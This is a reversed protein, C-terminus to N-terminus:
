SCKEEEDGQHKRGVSDDVFSTTAECSSLGKFFVVLKPVLGMTRNSFFFARSALKLIFERLIMAALRFLLSMPDVAVKPKVLNESMLARSNEELINPKLGDGVEEKWTLDALSFRSTTWTGELGM